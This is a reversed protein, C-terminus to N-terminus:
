SFPHSPTHLQVYRLVALTILFIVFPGLDFLSKKVSWKQGWHLILHYFTTFALINTGFKVSPHLLLGQHPSMGPAWQSVASAYYYPSKLTIFGLIGVLIAWQLMSFVLRINHMERSYDLSRAWILLFSTLVLFGLLIGTLMPSLKLQWLALTLGYQLLAHLLIISPIEKRSAFFWYALYVLTLVFFGTNLM